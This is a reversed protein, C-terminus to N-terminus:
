LYNMYLPVSLYLRKITFVITIINDLNIKVNKEASYAKEHKLTKRYLVSTDLFYIYMLCRIYIKQTYEIENRSKYM